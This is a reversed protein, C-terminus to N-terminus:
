TAAQDPLRYHHVIWRAALNVILEIVLLILALYFVSPTQLKTVNDLIQSAIRSALTDGNAFLNGHILSQSGGGIVQLVAIAEGLARSLGLICASAIGPRTSSLVVGRVMEWRTVGLALAGDKLEPAVSLFLDRTISAIIPLAMITLILIATFLGLGTLSAQGFLPIWGLASHLASEISSRLFPGLIVIGWLGLIVSPIAALLEVLPGIVAGVRRSALLSLYLGIAIGLPAALLLAGGSTVLTGYIFSGAGYTNTVPNWTTHGLFSLGYTSVALSAGNIVQYIIAVILAMAVLSALVTLGFLVGDGFRDGFHRRMPLGAVAPTVSM